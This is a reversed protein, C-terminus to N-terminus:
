TQKDGPRTDPGLDFFTTLVLRADFQDQGWGISPEASHWLTSDHILLRNFRAEVFHHPAWAKPEIEKLRFLDDGQAPDIREGFFPHRWFKTGSKSQPQPNLYLHSSFQGMVMDQHVYSPAKVGEPMARAFCYNIDVQHNLVDALVSNMLHQVLDNAKGIFPYSVQDAPNTVTKFDLKLVRERLEDPTRCLAPQVDDYVLIYPYASEM